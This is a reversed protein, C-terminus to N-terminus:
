LQEPNQSLQNLNPLPRHLPAQLPNPHVHNQGQGRTEENEDNRRTASIIEAELDQHHNEGLRRGRRGRDKSRAGDAGVRAEVEVEVEVGAGKEVRQVQGGGEQAVIEKTLIIDMFLWKIM